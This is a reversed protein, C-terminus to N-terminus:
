IRPCEVRVGRDLALPGVRFFLAMPRHGKWSFFGMRGLATYAMPIYLSMPLYTEPHGWLSSERFSPTGLVYGSEMQYPNELLHPGLTELADGSDM